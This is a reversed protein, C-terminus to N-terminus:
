ATWTRRCYPCTITEEEPEAKPRSHGITDKGNLIKKAQKPKERLITEARDATSPAAQTLELSIADAQEKPIGQERLIQRLQAAIMGKQSQNLHRRHLNYSAALALAQKDTGIFDEVPVEIDLDRAIEYRTRGDLIKGEFLVVPVKIGHKQIDETMERREDYLPRPFLDAYKHIDYRMMAGQRENECVGPVEQVV